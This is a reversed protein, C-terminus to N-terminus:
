WSFFKEEAKIKNDVFAKNSTNWYQTIKNEELPSKEVENKVFKAVPVTFALADITRSVVDSLVPSEASFNRIAREVAIQFATLQFAKLVSRSVVILIVSMIETDSSSETARGADGFLWMIADKM